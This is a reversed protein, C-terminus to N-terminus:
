VGERIMERFAKRAHHLQSKCTGTSIDLMQAIEEHKFGEMDHLVLLARYGDPLERIAAQVDMVADLDPAAFPMSEAAESEAFLSQAFRQRRYKERWLHVVFGSLWTRLSARWQFEAL